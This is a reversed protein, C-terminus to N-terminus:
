LKPATSRKPAGHHELCRTVIGGIKRVAALTKIEPQVFENTWETRALRAYEEILLLEEGITLVHESIGNQYSRESDFAEYVQQRNTM